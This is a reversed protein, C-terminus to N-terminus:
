GQSCCISGYHQEYLASRRHLHLDRLVHSLQYRNYYYTTGLQEVFCELSVSTSTRTAVSVLTEFYVAIVNSIQMTKLPTDPM